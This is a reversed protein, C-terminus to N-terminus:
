FVLSAAILLEDPPKPTGPPVSKKLEEWDYMVKKPHQINLYYFSSFLVTFDM